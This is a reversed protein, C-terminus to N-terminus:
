RTAPTMRRATPITATLFSPNPRKPGWDLLGTGTAVPPGAAGRVGAREALGATVRGVAGIGAQAVM